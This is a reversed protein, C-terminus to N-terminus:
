KIRNPARELAARQAPPMADLMEQLYEVRHRGVQLVLAAPRRKFCWDCRGIAGTPIFRRCQFCRDRETLLRREANRRYVMLTDRLRPWRPLAVAQGLTWNLSLERRFRVSGTAGEEPEGIYIVTDGRYARLVEYSAADDGYPPWCLVLTRNRHRRVAAVSSAPLVHTWPERGSGHWANRTGRRPPAADYAVIDVGRARLLAAWYGTGAGCEVLPAHAALVDLARTNPVAWSFLSALERRREMLDLKAALEAPAGLLLTMLELQPNESAKLPRRRAAAELRERYEGLLLPESM